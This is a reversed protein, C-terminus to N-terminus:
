PQSAAWPNVVSVGSTSRSLTRAAAGQRLALWQELEAPPVPRSIHYGQAQDCGFSRLLDLTDAREVGEAVMTLGLSHALSVTSRVLATAMADGDMRSIFSRDLKLQDIPLDRLYSLSSYGTGFDDVSILVGLGRLEDLVARARIWDSMLFAETIEVELCRAPLGHEELRARVMRPLEADIVTTASLNVAVAVDLGGARWRACQRLAQDVVHDTLHRALGSDEVLDLFADPYLLGEVPHRWRVLAEVGALSGDHLRVKPQYHLELESGDGTLVSRLHEVTHLRQVSHPDEEAVYTRWGARAQKAAYMAVDARQMLETAQRGHEPALAIGISVGVRVTVGDLDFPEDMARCLREAVAAPTSPDNGALVVGFEDGGLRALTDGPAIQSALRPGVLRLLQDGMVHGLTDNVEKFRDLDLLLVARAGAGAAAPDFLRGALDHFARWNPLGTLEDTRALRHSDALQESERITLALRSLALAICAAALVASLSGWNSGERLLVVLAGAASVLPVTSGVGTGRAARGPHQELRAAAAVALFAAPWGMDTLSPHVHTDTSTQFLYLTDTTAMALFGALLLWWPPGAAGRLLALATVVVALLVLDGLPYAIAVLSSPGGDARLMPDIVFAGAVAGVGLGAVLGDVWTAVPLRGTHRRVLSVVGVYTFPFMALYGVDAMSVAPQPDLDAVAGYWFLDGVLWCGAGLTLCAWPLRHPRPGLARSGIVAVSATICVYYLLAFGWSTRLAEAAPWRGAAVLDLVCLAGAGTAVGLVARTRATPSGSSGPM